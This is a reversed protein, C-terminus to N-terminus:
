SKKKKKSKRRLFFRNAKQKGVRVILAGAVKEYLRDLDDEEANFETQLMAQAAKAKTVAARDAAFQEVLPPIDRLVQARVADDEPLFKVARDVFDVYAPGTEEITAMAVADIGNPFIDTYPRERRGNPSRGGIAAAATKGADDLADDTADRDAIALTVDEGADEIARKKAKYRGRAGTLPRELDSFKARRLRGITYQSKDLRGDISTSDTFAEM